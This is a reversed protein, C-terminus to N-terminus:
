GGAVFAPLALAAQHIAASYYQCARTPAELEIDSERKVLLEQKGAMTNSWWGSPYCPQPYSILKVDKFGASQMAQQMPKATTAYDYFPSGSQQVVIGDERLAKFCDRFFDETFLGEAPGIPDTSDIIILDLSEPAADQMWKIGDAFIFEVRSDQNSACLEPFYDEALKTVRQDIEVQTVHKVVDHKLVERLTGCDGGGIIVVNEPRAHSYLAPHSIMEHYFFNDRGTLMVLGDITMLYGFQETDYIAICAYDSQEEHVKAKIKLSFASGNVACIETFWENKNLNQVAAGLKSM